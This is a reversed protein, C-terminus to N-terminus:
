KKTADNDYHQLDYSLVKLFDLYFDLINFKYRIQTDNGILKFYYVFFLFLSAVLFYFFLALLNLFWM